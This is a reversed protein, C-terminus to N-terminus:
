IFPSLAIASYESKLLSVTVLGVSFILFAMASASTPSSTNPSSGVVWFSSDKAASFIPLSAAKNTGEPVIPFEIAMFTQVVSNSSTM